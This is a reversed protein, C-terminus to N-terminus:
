RVAQGYDVAKYGGIEHVAEPHLREVEDAMLGIQPTDDGRYKFAYVALGNDLSGVKRIDEKLTRDSWLMPNMGYKMVGGMATGGLGFMGGMAADASKQAIEQQKVQANYNNNVAGMYDVGAVQAQPTSAFAPNSVQSGSMLATIENIPQNRESMIEQNAQGRGALLLSTIADNQAYKLNNMEADFAASGAKIGSNSLRTRLAEEDRAFRPNLRASGLEMLRAETAENGLTLPKGLLDGIRASQDRGIGAINTKTINNIDFIKQAAPSLTTTATFQPVTIVKGNADTFTNNGTQNYTLSGDPTVQNTQNLLQQTTATSQNMVGQAEATKAPDPAQLAPAPDNM